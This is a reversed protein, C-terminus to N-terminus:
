RRLPREMTFADPRIGNEVQRWSVPAAIPFGARARPSWAGVATTGRGNRLYDIFMRGARKGPASALTYRNPATAALRHAIQKAYARAQDHDIPTALTMLHLGKGGTLKPWPELGESQLMWRLTLATEIVFEWDIGEGPDLDFVLMDPREIDDISANWPHSEVAGIEVLGLLGALDNVWLRTGEGGERKEITLKHVTEPVPPLKGKHYFATGRVHRV